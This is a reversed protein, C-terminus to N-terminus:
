EELESKMAYYAKIILDSQGEYGAVFMRGAALLRVVKDPRAADSQALARLLAGALAEYETVWHAPQNPSYLATPGCGEDHDFLWQAALKVPAVSVGADPQAPELAALIRATYDAQAAAKALDLTAHDSYEAMIGLRWGGRGNKIICAKAAIFDAFHAGDIHTWVLPKVRVAGAEGRLRALEAAMTAVEDALQPAMAILAANAENRVQDGSNSMFCVRGMDSSMIHINWDMGDRPDHDCFWPGPTVKARLEAIDAFQQPTMRDTMTHEM